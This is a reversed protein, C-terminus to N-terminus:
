TEQDLLMRIRSLYPHASTNWKMMPFRVVHAIHSREHFIVMDFRARGPYALADASSALRGGLNSATSRPESVFSKRSLHGSRRVRHCSNSSSGGGGSRDRRFRSPISAADAEGRGRATGVVPRARCAFQKERDSLYPFTAVVEESTTSRSSMRIMSIPGCQRSMNKTPMRYCFIGGQSCGCRRATTWTRLSQAGCRMRRM